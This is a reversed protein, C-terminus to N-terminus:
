ITDIFIHFAIVSIFSFKYRFLTVVSIKLRSIGIYVHELDIFGIDIATLSCYLTYKITFMYNRIKDKYWCKHYKFNPCQNKRDTKYVECQEDRDTEASWSLDPEQQKNDILVNRNFHPLCM